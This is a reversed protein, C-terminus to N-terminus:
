IIIVKLNIGLDKLLNLASGNSEPSQVDNMSESSENHSQNSEEVLQRIMATVDENGLAQNSISSPISRKAKQETSVQKGSSSTSKSSEDYKQRLSHLISSRSFQFLNEVGFLEGRMKAEGDVGEFRGRQFKKKTAIQDEGVASSLQQEPLVVQHFQQKYLQRM